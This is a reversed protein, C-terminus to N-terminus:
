KRQCAPSTGATLRNGIQQRTTVDWLRVTGDLSGNALVL